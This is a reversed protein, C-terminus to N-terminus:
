SQEDLKKEIAVLRREIRELIATLRVEDVSMPPYINPLNGNCQSQSQGFGYTPVLNNDPNRSLDNNGM